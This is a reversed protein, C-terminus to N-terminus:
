GNPTLGVARPKPSRMGDATAAATPPPPHEAKGAISGVLVTEDELAAALAAHGALASPDPPGDRWSLVAQKQSRMEEYFDNAENLQNVESQKTDLWRQLLKANDKTLVQNREDLQGLELQLTNIEDHLIQPTHAYPATPLRPPSL